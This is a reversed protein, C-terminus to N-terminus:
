PVRGVFNVFDRSLRKGDAAPHPDKRHIALLETVSALAFLGISGSVRLFHPAIPFARHLPDFAVMHVM